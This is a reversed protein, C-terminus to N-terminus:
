ARTGAVLDTTPRWCFALLFPTSREAGVFLNQQVFPPKRILARCSCPGKARAHKCWHIELTDPYKTRPYTYRVCVCVTV